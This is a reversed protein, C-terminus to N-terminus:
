MIRSLVTKVVQDVTIEEWRPAYLVMVSPGVPHWVAPDSARFMAITPVGLLAALHTIGSDNGLYCGCQCLHRAVELLPADLLMTPTSQEQQLIEIREHDAPGGLLLVRRDLRRLLRIVAAFSSVPWCKRSGGSGPHVAVDYIM